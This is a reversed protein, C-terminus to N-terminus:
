LSAATTDPTKSLCSVKEREERPLILPRGLFFLKGGSPSFLARHCIPNRKLFSEVGNNYDHLCKNDANAGM